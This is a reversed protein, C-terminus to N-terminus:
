RDPAYLNVLRVRGLTKLALDLYASRGPISGEAAQSVAVSHLRVFGVGLSSSSKTGIAPPLYRQVGRGKTWHM